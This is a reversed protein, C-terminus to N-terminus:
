FLINHSSEGYQGETLNFQQYKCKIDKKKM